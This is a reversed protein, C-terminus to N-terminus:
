RVQGAVRRSLVRNLKALKQALDPVVVEKPKEAPKGVLLIGGQQLCQEIVKEKSSKESKRKM